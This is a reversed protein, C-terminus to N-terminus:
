VKRPVVITPELGLLTDGGPGMLTRALVEDNPPRGNGMHFSCRQSVRYHFFSRESGRTEFSVGGPGPSASAHATM